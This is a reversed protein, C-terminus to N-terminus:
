RLATTKIVIRVTASVDAGQAPTATVKVTRLGETGFTHTPASTGGAGTVTNPTGDGWEWTYAIVTAGGSVTANATFTVPTSKVFATDAIPSTIAVSVSPAPPPPPPPAPTTVNLTLTGIVRSPQSTAVELTILHAGAAFTVSPAPEGLHDPLRDNDVDWIYATITPVASGDTTSLSPTLTVPTNATPTAPSAAITLVLNRAFPPDQPGPAPPPPPAPSPTPTPAPSPSPGPGPQPAPAPAAPTTVTITATRRVDQATATITVTHDGSWQARAHGTGDTTVDQVSLEGTSAELHVPVYTAAGRGSDSTSAYIDLETSGGGVPLTLDRPTVFVAATASPAPSAAAPATPQTPSQGGCAVLGVLALVVLVRRM